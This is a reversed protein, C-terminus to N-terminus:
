KEALTFRPSAIPENGGWVTERKGEREKEEKDNSGNTRKRAMM